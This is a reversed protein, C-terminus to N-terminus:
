SGAQSRGRETVSERRRGVEDADVQWARFREREFALGEGLPRSAVERYTDNITRVARRDNGAVDAALAVATPLLEDHPVVRNVLGVREAEAAGVFNGTLSMERAYRPGVAQPLLGTLGGGPHIGVRAHTDAFAAQESAILFDCALALELGGTVTAGNVAGIVPTRMRRLTIWPDNEETLGAMELDGAAIAKLDLGACFAPDSGTLVVAGVEGAAGADELGRLAGVLAEVLARDMANRQEPRNLTLVVVDDVRDDRLLVDAM